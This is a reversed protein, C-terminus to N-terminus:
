QVVVCYRYNGFDDFTSLSKHGKTLQGDNVWLQVEKFAHDLITPYLETESTLFFHPLYDWEADTYPSIPLRAFRAQVVLPIVYGDL